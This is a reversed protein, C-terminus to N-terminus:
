QGSRILSVIVFTFLSDTMLREQPDVDYLASPVHAHLEQYKNWIGGKLWKSHVYVQLTYRGHIFRSNISTTNEKVQM